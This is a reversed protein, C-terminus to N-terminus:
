QALIDTEQTRYPKVWAKAKNSFMSFTCIKQAIILNKLMTVVCIQACFSVTTKVDEKDVSLGIVQQRNIFSMEIFKRRQIHLLNTQILHYFDPPNLSLFQFNAPKQERQATPTKRPGPSLLPLKRTHKNKDQKQTQAKEGPLDSLFTPFTTYKKENLLM